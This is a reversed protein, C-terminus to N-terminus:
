LLKASLIVKESGVLVYDGAALEATAGSHLRKGNSIFTGYSSNLDTVTIKDGNCRFECHEKSVGPTGTPFVMQCNAGERGVRVAGKGIVTKGALPGAECCVAIRRHKGKKTLILVFVLVLAIVLVVIAAIIIILKTGIEPTLYKIEQDDLADMIYDMSLALTMPSSNFEAITMTNMGIANGESDVMPGGSNGNNAIADTMIYRTGESVYEPNSITGKTITIDSIESKLNSSGSAKDSLGPFGLCYADDSKHMKKPSKLVIPIREELKSSLRLIAIDRNADQYIVEAKIASDENHETVFVKHVNEAVVHYNTVVYSKNSTGDGVVFGTGTVMYDSLPLFVRVVSKQAEEVGRDAFASVGCSLCLSLAILLIFFRSIRKRETKM